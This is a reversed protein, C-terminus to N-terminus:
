KALAAGLAKLDSQPDALAEAPPSEGAEIWRKGMMYSRPDNMADVALLEDGRYYWVSQARAGGGARVVTKDYGASLGAIQLKVDYQDSWFWPRARYGATGGMMSAATAEAQDIANGVSELRVRGGRYPFSTCDGAAFIAPDSTRGDGDVRIGNEVALGAAEALGTSPRIGIGVVAFDIDLSTGDAFSAASVRGEGTLGTVATGERLDVGHARHLDAFFGSTAPAAVRQLIREAMEVLTVALGRAAAVAAIELGIYGGGIVLVRRGEVFEAAMADADALSRLTYVGALTGGIEGPLRIPDSGTTLALQDYALNEGNDLAVAKASRDIATVTVGGRLEIGQEGYFTEPRLYLREADLEGMLYKKSLPPRQYPPAHESGILTISGDHGLARLKAALSAGAQGAGVIVIRSM